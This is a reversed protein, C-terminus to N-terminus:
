GGSVGRDLLTVEVEGVRRRDTTLVRMRWADDEIEDGPRPLRGLRDMILGGITEYDGAPLSIGYRSLQDPRVSGPAV